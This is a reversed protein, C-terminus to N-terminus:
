DDYSSSFSSQPNMESRGRFTGGEEIKLSGAKIDGVLQGTSYISLGNDITANGEVQGSVVLENAAIDGKVRGDEGIIISGSVTVTGEVTGDIRLNSSGNIEGKIVTNRGIITEIDNAADDIKKKVSGFM